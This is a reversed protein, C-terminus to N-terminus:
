IREYLDAPEEAHDTGKRQLDVRELKGDGDKQTLVLWGGGRRKICRVPVGIADLIQYLEESQGLRLSALLCAIQEILQACAHEGRVFQSHDPLMPFAAKLHRQAFRYFAQESPFRAWQGFLALTLLESLGLKPAPGPHRPMSLSHQKCLDDVMVYLVTLFTDLHEM